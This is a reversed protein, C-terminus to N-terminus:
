IELLINFIDFTKKNKTNKWVLQTNVYKMKKKVYRVIIEEILYQHLSWKTIKYGHNITLVDRETIIIAM